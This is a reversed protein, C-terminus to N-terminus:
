INCRISGAGAASKFAADIVKMVRLSQAPKVILEEKGDLAAMYNYYFNCSDGQIAPIETEVITDKSRPAMTRTPGAATYVINESWEQVGEKASVIKGAGDWTPIVLTGKDGSVHWRPHPIFCYTDIQVLALTGNEFTIYLKFNDDCEASKVKFLKAYVETVKYPLAWMLQDVLHIGWDYLMGGGNIAAGRWDHLTGGSGQVRSEIYFLNGLTGEDFIKKFNIFDTDWRRNQHAAFQKGNKKAAAIVEELEAANMNVPKESIVNKGANLAAISLEKHFNNPTAVIVVDVNKDALLENYSAYTILGDERAVDMREPRIDYAGIVKYDTVKPVRDMVRKFHHGRGMGGFGVIAGRHGM